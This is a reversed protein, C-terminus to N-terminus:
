AKVDVQRSAYLPKDKLRILVSKFRDTDKKTKDVERNLEVMKVVRKWPNELHKEEEQDTILRSEEERNAKCREEFTKRKLEYYNKLSDRAQSILEAKKENQEADKAALHERWKANWQRLIAYEDSDSTAVFSVEQEYVNTPEKDNKTIVDVQVDNGYPADPIEAELYGSSSDSM